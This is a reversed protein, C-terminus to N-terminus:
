TFTKCVLISGCILAVAVLVLKSIGFIHGALLLALLSFSLIYSKKTEM